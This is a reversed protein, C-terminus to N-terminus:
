ECKELRLRVLPTEPVPVAVPWVDPPRASCCCVRGARLRARWWTGGVGLAVNRASPTALTRKNGLGGGLLDVLVLGAAGGALSGLCGGARGGLLGGLVDVLRMWWCWGWWCSGWLALALLLDVLWALGTLAGM